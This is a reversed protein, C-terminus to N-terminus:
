CELVFRKNKNNTVFISYKLMVFYVLDAQSGGLHVTGQSNAHAHPTGATTTRATNNLRDVAPLSTTAVIRMMEKRKKEMKKLM